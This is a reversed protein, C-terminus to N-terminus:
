RILAFHGKYREGNGRTVVFWYDTAPLERGNHSGNWSNGNQLLSLLKGYRDFISVELGPEYHAFRIAWADNFGDGNPTFFKPYMLLVAEAQAAGCENKDRVYLTYKGPRLGTFVPSQQYTIGDASYEYDGNGTVELALSNSDDTWDQTHIGTIKPASSGYVTIAITSSCQVTAFNDTVTLTYIGPTAVVITSTNEGTSWNYHDFGPPAALTISNGHCLWYQDPINLQPKPAVILSFSTETHCGTLSTVRAHVTQPNSINGLSTIPNAGSVADQPTLHYSVIFNASPQGGLIAADQLALNFVQSGNGAEDCQVMDQPQFAVPAPLISVTKSFYREYGGKNMKVRVTYDGASAYTHQVNFQDSFNGDGFDWRISEGPQTAQASFHLSSGSCGGSVNIGTIYFGPQFFAPLGWFSLRGALGVSQPQLNCGTGITDPSHIVSLFASEFSAIYIKSDPGLAMSGTRVPMDDIITQSAPIDAATLDFQSVLTDETIYLANGSPSFEVGFISGETLTLPNSLLGTSADFSFLQANMLNNAIALKTGDPSIKMQGFSSSDLGTVLSGIHSIVPASIGSPGVEWAYFADSDWQHAIVWIDTGNAHQLAVLKECAPAMLPINKVTVDGLGGGANTDVISYQIGWPGAVQDATFLYYSGPIGPHKFTIASQTSSRGGHLDFGNPMQQHNRNMVRVGNTYFLLQGDRNCAIATGEETLIQNDTLAVPTGTVFDLGARNGFYWLHDQQGRAQFTGHLLLIFFFGICSCHRWIAQASTPKPLFIIQQKKSPHKPYFGFRSLGSLRMGTQITYHLLVQM